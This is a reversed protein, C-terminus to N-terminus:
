HGSITGLVFLSRSSHSRLYFDLHFVIQRCISVCPANVKFLKKSLLILMIWVLHGQYPEYVDLVIHWYKKGIKKLMTRRNEVSPAKNCLHVLRLFSVNQHMVRSALCSISIQLRIRCWHRLIFGGGSGGRHPPAEGGWVGGANRTDNREFRLKSGM